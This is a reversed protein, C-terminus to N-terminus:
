CCILDNFLRKRDTYIPEIPSSLSKGSIKCLKHGMPLKVMRVYPNTGLCTECVM